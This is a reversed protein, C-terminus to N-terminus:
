EERAKKPTAIAETGPEASPSLAEPSVVGTYDFLAGELGVNFRYNSFRASMLLRNTKQEYVDVTQPLLVHYMPSWQFTRRILRRPVPVTAKWTETWSQRGGQRSLTMERALNLAGEAIETKCELAVVKGEETTIFRDFVTSMVVQGESSYGVVSQLCSTVADYYYVYRVVEHPEKYKRAGLPRMETARPLHGGLLPLQMPSSEYNAPNSLSLAAAVYPEVQPLDGTGYVDQIPQIAEEELSVERVRELFPQYSILRRGNLIYVM